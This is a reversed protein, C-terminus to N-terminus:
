YNLSELVLELLKDPADIHIYHGANEIIYTHKTTNIIRQRDSNNLSESRDGLAFYINTSININSLIHMLDQRFYDDLLARLATPDLGLQLQDSATSRLNMALWQSTAKDLGASELRTIFAQRSSFIEHTLPEILALISYTSSASNKQDSAWPMFDVLWATKLNEHFLEVFSLAVKAGFSHGLVAHVPEAFEQTLKVLDLAATTISHPPSLDQSNGHMRLDLLVAGFDPKRDVLRRAFTRWNSGSGLFGHIFFIWHAPNSNSHTIREYSLLNNM